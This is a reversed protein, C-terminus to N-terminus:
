RFLKQIHNLVPPKYYTLKLRKIYTLENNYKMSDKLSRMKGFVSIASGASDLVIIDALTSASNKYAFAVVYHENSASNMCHVIVPHGLNIESKIKALFNKGTYDHFGTNPTNSWICVASTSSFVGIDKLQNITYKRKNYYAAVNGASCVACGHAIIDDNNEYFKQNLNQPMLLTKETSRRFLIM